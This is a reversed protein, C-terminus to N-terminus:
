FFEREETLPIRFTLSVTQANKVIKLSRGSTKWVKDQSLKGLIATIVLWYNDGGGLRRAQAEERVHESLPEDNSDNM